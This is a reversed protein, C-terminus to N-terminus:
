YHVKKEIYRFQIFTLLIVISMLVVSQASSIGYQNAQFGDYWVKYILIQTSGSPGGETISHIIGFTDFFAYVVNVVVLFFTTPSLLPFIITWFRKFKSAGDIAAAEIISKPIAQLGALFFLFNYSIQKWAASLIVLGMAQHSNLHHDWYIGIKKLFFTAIGITPDFISLWLVGAIAPAIAYPWILITKYFLSAKIVQDAKVALFLSLSLSVFTVSFSFIFTVYFSNLYSPDSFISIYNELGVFASHFGFPDQQYFSQLIAQYAPWM